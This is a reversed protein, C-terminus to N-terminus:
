GELAPTCVAEGDLTETEADGPEGEDVCDLTSADLAEAGTLLRVREGEGDDAHARTGIQFESCAALMVLSATATTLLFRRM